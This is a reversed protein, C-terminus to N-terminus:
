GSLNPTLQEREKKKAPPPHLSRCNYRNELKEGYARTFILGEWDGKLDLYTM